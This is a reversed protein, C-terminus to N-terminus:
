PALRDKWADAASLAVSEVDTPKADTKVPAMDIGYAGLTTIADNEPLRGAFALIDAGENALAVALHINDSLARGPYQNRVVRRSHITRNTMDTDLIVFDDASFLDDTFFAGGSVPVAINKRDSGETAYEISIEDINPHKERINQRIHDSIATNTLVDFTYPVLRLSLFRYSGSNRGSIESIERIGPNDAVIQRISGLVDKEISADLLVKIGDLAIRGGSIGAVVAVIFAAALDAVPIGAASIVVGLAIVFMAIADIFSHRADAMLSPCMEQRAVRKKYVANALAFLAAIILTPIAKSPETLFPKHALAQAVAAKGLQYAGATIVIGIATVILNEVKYLGARFRSTRKQSVHIGLAVLFGTITRSVTLLGGALFAVSRFHAALFLLGAAFLACLCATILLVRKARDM